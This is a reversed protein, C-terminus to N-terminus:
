RDKASGAIKFCDSIVRSIKKNSMTMNYFPMNEPLIDNFICRGATTEILGRSQGITAETDPHSEGKEDVIAGDDRM